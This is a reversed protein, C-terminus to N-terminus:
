TFTLASCAMHAHVWYRPCDPMSWHDDVQLQQLPCSDVPTVSDWECGNARAWQLV